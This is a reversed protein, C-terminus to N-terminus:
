KKVLITLPVIALFSYSFATWILMFVAFAPPLAVIGKAGGATVEWMTGIISFIVLILVINTARLKMVIVALIWLYVSLWIITYPFCQICNVAEEIIIFPLGCILYQVMTPVPLRQFWRALSLRWRVTAIYAVILVLIHVILGTTENFTM